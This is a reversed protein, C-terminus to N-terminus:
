GHHSERRSFERCYQAAQEAADPRACRASMAALQALAARDKTLRRVDSLLREASLEQERIMLAAGRSQYYGANAAQHDDTAQPFPVYIAPLGACCVEACTMAGARCVVLDAWQYAASMDEIFPEMRLMGSSEEYGAALYGSRVTEYHSKGTQHWVHVGDNNLESFCDVMVENIARAGLSGGLVLLRLQDEEVSDQRATESATHLGAIDKRVPNGVTIGGALAGDFAQLVTKAFRSLLRNASGPKANQEHIVLPIRLIWCALGGPVSVYGGMGLVSDPKLRLLLKLAQCLGAMLLVVSKMKALLSKGRLGTTDVQHLVYGREPVVRSELGSSTGLWEV